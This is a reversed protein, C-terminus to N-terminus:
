CKNRQEIEMDRRSKPSDHYRKYEQWGRQERMDAAEGMDTKFVNPDLYESDQQWECSNQEFTIHCGGFHAIRFLSAVDSSVELRWIEDAANKTMVDGFEHRERIIDTVRKKEELFDDSPETRKVPNVGLSKKWELYNGIAVAFGVVAVLVWFLVALICALDVFTEMIM